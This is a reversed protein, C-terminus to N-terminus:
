YPKGNYVMWKPTGRNKSVSVHVWAPRDWSMPARRQIAIAPRVKSCSITTRCTRLVKAWSTEHAVLTDNAEPKSLKSIGQPDM